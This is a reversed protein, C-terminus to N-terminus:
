VLRVSNGGAPPFLNLDPKKGRCARPFFCREPQLRPIQGGKASLHHAAAAQLRRLFAAFCTKQRDFLSLGM